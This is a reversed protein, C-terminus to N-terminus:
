KRRKVIVQNGTVKVVVVQTGKEIYEGRTVVDTRAGNLRAMGSPRLDTLAEGELGALKEMGVSQSSVGSERSLERKLAAPTKSLMKLSFVILGPVTVVDAALFILGMGVSIETFVLFISYGFLGLAVISLIGGSPLFIEAMVVGVGALQLLIPILINM